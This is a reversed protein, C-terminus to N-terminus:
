PRSSGACTWCRQAAELEAKWRAEIELADAKRGRDEGPDGQVFGRGRGPQQRPRPRHGQLPAGPGPHHTGQRGPPGAQGFSEGQGPRLRHGAPRHGQGPSFARLHVPRFVRRGRWPTTRIIVKHAKEYNAKLGRLILAATEVDPEPLKVLQFRRALAPDKEFYKKYESWTTAACTKLEGRALAPKLLNAADSGGAQGGAGVLTHAEDIFLIINRESSKIENIVGRLRNKM